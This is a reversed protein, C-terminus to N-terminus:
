ETGGLTSPVSVVMRTGANPAATVDTRGGALEVRQLLSHLGLHGGAVAKPLVAPPDFGVGDDSITLTVWGEEPGHTLTVTM